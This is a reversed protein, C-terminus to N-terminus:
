DFKRSMSIKRYLAIVKKNNKEWEPNSLRPISFESEMQTMLEALKMNRQRDSLKSQMIKEYKQGIQAISMKFVEM